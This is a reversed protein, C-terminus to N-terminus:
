SRSYSARSNSADGPRTKPTKLASRITRDGLSVDKWELSRLEGVRWGTLYLFSIPDKLRDPLVAHLQNFAGPDLFGSRPAATAPMPVHPVASLKGSQRALNLGRRLISLDYRVTSASLEEDLRAAAYSGIRDSTINLVRDGAFWEGLRRLAMDVIRGSRNGKIRYDTRIAAALDEFRIREQAPGIFTGARIEATKQRLLKRAVKV